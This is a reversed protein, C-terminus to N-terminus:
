YAVCRVNIFFGCLQRCLLPASIAKCTLVRYMVTLRRGQQQQQQQKRRQVYLDRALGMAWAGEICPLALEPLLSWRGM